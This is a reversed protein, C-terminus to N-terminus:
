GQIKLSFLCKTSTNVYGSVYSVHEHMNMREIVDDDSLKKYKSCMPCNSNKNILNTAIPEWVNNPNDPCVVSVRNNMGSFRSGERLTYGKGKQSLKLVFEEETTRTGTVM